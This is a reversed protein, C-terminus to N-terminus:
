GCGRVCAPHHVGAGEARRRGMGHRDRGNAACRVARGAYDIGLTEGHWSNILGAVDNLKEVDEPFREGLLKLLKVIANDIGDAKFIHASDGKATLATGDALVATIEEPTVSPNNSQQITVEHAFPVEVSLTM